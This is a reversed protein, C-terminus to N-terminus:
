FFFFLKTNILMEDIAFEITKNDRSTLKDWLTVGHGRTELYGEAIMIFRVFGICGYLGISYLTNNSNHTQFTM